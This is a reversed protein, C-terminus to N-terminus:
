TDYAFINSYTGSGAEIMTGAVYAAQNESIGMKVYDVQMFKEAFCDTREGADLRKKLGNWLGLWLNLEMQHYPEYKRRWWQLPHPLYELVPYQDVLFQQGFVSGFFTTERYIEALIPDDLTEIRQGYTVALIVSASYRKVHDLFHIPDVLIDRLYKRSEMEQLPKM